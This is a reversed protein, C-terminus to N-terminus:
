SAARQAAVPPASIHGDRLGLAIAHVRTTADLKSMANRVHTKVTEASLVLLEAVQEGTLGQALLDMVQRERKSLAPTGPEPLDPAAGADPPLYARLRPDIYREGAVALEIAELLEDPDGDKLAYGAAGAALGRLALDTDCSATYLVVRCVPQTATLERTLAIGDDPGLDVDVVAVDPAHEAVLARATSADGATGLVDCGRRRLLVELGMRLAPHDEVLVLRLPM